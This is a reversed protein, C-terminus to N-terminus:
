PKKLMKLLIKDGTKINFFEAANGQNLSIEISDHSGVVVLPRHKEVEGYVRCMPIIKGFLAVSMGYNLFKEVSSYPVNTVINGFDDVYMVEGSIVDGSVSFNGINLDVFKEFLIGLDEPKKGISLYAAVPSFIDRGHFTYSAHPFDKTIEYVSFKGMSKAAPILLGNDPGVFYTDKVQVILSKRETGVGPDVVAIHVAPPFYKVASKLLFAGERLNHPSIKYSIDIINADPNISLIRGKMAATYAFGFDTLITVISRMFDLLLVL